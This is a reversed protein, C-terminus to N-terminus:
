RDLVFNQKYNLAELMIDDKTLKKHESLYKYFQTKITEQEILLFLGLLTDEDLINNVIDYIKKGLNDLNNRKIVKKIM